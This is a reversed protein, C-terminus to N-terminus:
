VCVHQCVYVDREFAPIVQGYNVWLYGLMGVNNYGTM